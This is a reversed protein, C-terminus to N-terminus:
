RLFATVLWMVVFTIGVLFAGSLGESALAATLASAVIFGALLSALALLVSRIFKHEKRYLFYISTFLGLALPLSPTEMPVLASWVVLGGMIGGPLLLDSVAPQDVLRTLWTPWNPQPRTPPLMVEPEVVQREAFRIRDPVAIKGEKRLRLRQLLIMDYAQEVMEQQLADDKLTSRLYDRAAQVEEFSAEESIGLVQYPSKDTM